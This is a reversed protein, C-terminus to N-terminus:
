KTRLNIHVGNKTHLTILPDLEAIFDDPIEFDFKQIFLYLVAIMEMIAFNNGICMRSGAGFPLYVFRNITNKISPHFREPNFEEPTQWYDKHHHMYYIPILINTDAPITFNGFKEAQYNRRGMTWAPPYMRLTEDICMKIYPLSFLNDFNLEKDFTAIETELKKYVEKNKGLAYIAWSLACATTEHGAVFITMVEDRIQIDSMGEGTEEDRADLLMQLLDDKKIGSSRRENMMSYIYNDLEKVLIIDKKNHFLFTSIPKNLRTIALHNLEMIIESIRKADKEIQSGFMCKSIIDLALENFLPAINYATLNKHQALKNFSANTSEVIVQLFEELKKKHFAPQILKRNQKWEEGVSTLLGNGLLRSLIDYALSKRYNTSNDQLIQKIYDPHSVVAVRNIPSTLRLVPGCENCFETIHEITKNRLYYINGFLWHKKKPHPPLLLTM